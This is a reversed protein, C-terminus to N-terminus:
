VRAQAASSSGAPFSPSLSPRRLTRKAPRAMKPMVDTTALWAVVALSSIASRATMPAPAATIMGIPIAIMGTSNGPSASRRRATVTVVIPATTDIGSPGSSPPQSSVWKAQPKIKRM